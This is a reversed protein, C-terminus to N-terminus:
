DKLIKYSYNNKNTNVRLWYIGNPFTGINEITVVNNGKKLSTKRAIMIQGVSNIINISANCVEYCNININLLNKVPNPNVSILDEKINQHVILVNSYNIIGYKALQKIRYFVTSTNYNSVDYFEYKGPKSTFSAITTFYINDTSVEVFYNNSEDNLVKWQLLTTKNTKIANFYLFDIPLSTSKKSIELKLIVPLHESMMYLANLVNLPVSTNIPSANIASNNHLGDQGIVKFSNSIYQVNKTGNIIPKTCLIHDFRNNIGATSACDGPDSTRTSQTLYMAFSSPNASWNGIQKPPDYFRSNTDSANVMSQFCAESSSQTNFDGMFIYNTPATTHTQIWNMAGGIETARKAAGSNGSADHVVIVNLFITDQTTALLPSKYYLKHLNIDSINNDATYIGITGLYGFKSTKYFLSNVKKYGSINTFMANSYCGLCVSDMVKQKITDTSFTAPTGNIKEFAIIDPNLYQVVNKLYQHKLPSGTLPCGGTSAFGYNNINYTVISVTDTFYTQAIANNCLNLFIYICVIKKM